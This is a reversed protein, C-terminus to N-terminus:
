LSTKQGDDKVFKWDGEITPAWTIAGTPNFAVDGVETVTCDASSIMFEDDGDKGIFVFAYHNSTPGQSMDVTLLKGHTTTAATETVRDGFIATLSDKTTSILSVQVTGKETMVQRRATRSWDRIVDVSGFPTLTPGDESIFGGEEFSADLTDSPFTPMTLEDSVPAYYFMGSVRGVGINVDNTAM